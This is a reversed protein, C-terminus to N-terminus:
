KDVCYAKYKVDRNWPYVNSHFVLFVYGMNPKNPVNSRSWSGMGTVDGGMDPYLDMIGHRQVNEFDSLANPFGKKGNLILPYGSPLTRGLKKCFAIAGDQDVPTEPLLDFWIKGGEGLDQWGLSEPKDATGVRQFRYGSYTSCITGPAAPNKTDCLLTDDTRVITSERPEAESSPHRSTSACGFLGVMLILLSWKANM